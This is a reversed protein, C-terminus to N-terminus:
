LSNVSQLEQSLRSTWILIGSWTKTKLFCAVRSGFAVAVSGCCHRGVDFGLEDFCCGLDDFVDFDGFVM